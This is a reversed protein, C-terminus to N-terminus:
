QLMLLHPLYPRSAPGDVNLNLEAPLTSRWILLRDFTEQALRQLELNSADAHFYRTVTLKKDQKDRFGFSFCPLVCLSGELAGMIEFLQTWYEMILELQDELEQTSVIVM